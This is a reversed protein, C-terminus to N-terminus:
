IQYEEMSVVRGELRSREAAFAIMHNEVSTSIDALSKNEVGNLLDYLANMVGTDGGGHGGMISTDTVKDAVVIEEYQNKEFDFFGVKTNGMVGTLEGKTGMIKIFRGGRTFASMTFSATVGGEFELNVVQHDVVDNDCKFVCKGYDTERLARDLDEETALPNKTVKARGHYCIDNKSEKFLKIANYPCTTAHPCGDTCREPSGEPANDRKFYMLSGFSHVRKCKKGILWQLIDMDHCSKQLIMCSSRESNGYQGRVFSYSHHTNGVAEMHEISVIDGLMGEDIMNKLAKFFTTYRLVHCILVKVGKENAAKEIVRCEEPTPCVPKELLIDYGKEIAAMTPAFHDRDMTAIVAVDAFKEKALMTEWTTYVRDESLGTKDQMYARRAEIPEAFAVVEFKDQMNLAINTYTTGRAGMGVVIIKKKEM